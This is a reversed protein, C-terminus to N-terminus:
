AAREKPTLTVDYGLAALQDLARRRARERRRDDGAARDV